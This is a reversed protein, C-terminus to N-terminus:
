QELSLFSKTGKKVEKIKNAIKKLELYFEEIEKHKSQQWVEKAIMPENSAKLIEEISLSKKVKRNKLIKKKQQKQEELYVVKEKEIRKLLESAPEDDYVQSVLRGEFAKKLISQRLVESKEIGQKINEELIGCYSLRTELENVIKQQEKKTCLPFVFNEISAIGINAQTTEVTYREIEGKIVPSLSYYLVFKEVMLHTINKIIACSYSVLFEKDFDILINRGITGYRPFIIDGKEPKIKLALRDFDLKSIKKANIFDISGDKKLNGTSLYPIGDNQVKPMKHDVDGIRYTVNGFRTWHWKTPIDDYNIVETNQVIPLTKLKSIRRPKKGEKENREWRNIALKWEELQQEYRRKREEKIRELLIRADEPENKLRWEKTMKGEFAYKLLAKRYVKLNYQAKKLLEVGKDLESFLEEIREVIRQQEKLPALNVELERVITLNIRPRTTGKTFQKFQKRLGHSNIQYVLYKKNLNKHTIRARILDAVIIGKEYKEPAVCAKGVPTGLKTIIIDGKQFNHRDLFEAKEETVFRIKKDLFKNRKINQIRYVPVGKNRYESAKLNSGFPGDVIDNKPDLFIESLKVRLWNKPLKIEEDM